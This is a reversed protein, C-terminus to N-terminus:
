GCHTNLHTNTQKKDMHFCLLNNNAASGGRLGKQKMMAPQADQKPLFLRPFLPTFTCYMLSGCKTQRKNKEPTKKLSRLIKIHSSLLKHFVFVRYLRDTKVKSDLIYSWSDFLMHIQSSALVLAFCAFLVSTWNHRESFCRYILNLDHLGKHSYHRQPQCFDFTSKQPEAWFM